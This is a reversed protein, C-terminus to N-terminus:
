WPNALSALCGGRSKPSTFENGFRSGVPSNMTDVRTRHPREMSPLGIQYCLMSWKHTQLSITSIGSTGNLNDMWGMSSQPETCLFPLSLRMWMSRMPLHISLFIRGMSRCPSIREVAVWRHGNRTWPPHDNRAIQWRMTLRLRQHAWALTRHEFVSRHERGRNELMEATEPWSTTTNIVIFVLCEQDPAILFIMQTDNGHLLASVQTFYETTQDCGDIVNFLLHESM